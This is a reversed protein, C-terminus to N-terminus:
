RLRALLVLWRAEWSGRWLVIIIKVGHAVLFRRVITCLRLRWGMKESSSPGLELESDASYSELGGPDGGLGLRLRLVQLVHLVLWCCRRLGGSPEPRVEHVTYVAGAGGSM